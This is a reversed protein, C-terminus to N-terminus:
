SATDLKFVFESLSVGVLSSTATPPSPPRSTSCTVDPRATSATTAQTYMWNDSNNSWLNTLTECPGKLFVTHLQHSMHKTPTAISSPLPWLSLWHMVLIHELLIWPRYARQDWGKDRHKSVQGRSYTTCINSNCTNWPLLYNLRDIQDLYNEPSTDCRRWLLLSNM